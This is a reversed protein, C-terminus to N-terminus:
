ADAATRQRTQKVLSYLVHEAFDLAEGWTPRLQPGDAHGYVDFGVLEHAAGPMTCWTTRWGGAVPAAEVYFPGTILVARRVDGTVPDLQVAPCTGSSLRPRM